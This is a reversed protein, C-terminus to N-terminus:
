KQNNVYKKIVVGEFKHEFQGKAILFDITNTYRANLVDQVIWLGDYTWTGSVQVTDGIQLSFWKNKNLLDRSVAIYRYKDAQTTDIVINSSLIHPTNDCEKYTAHYVSADVIGYPQEDPEHGIGTPEIYEDKKNFLYILVYLLICLGAIILAIRQIQKERIDFYSLDNELEDFTVFITENENELMVGSETETKITYSKGKFIVTENQNYTPKM